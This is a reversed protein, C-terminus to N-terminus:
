RLVALGIVGAILDVGIGANGSARNSLPMIPTTSIFMIFIRVQMLSNHRIRLFQFHDQGQAGGCPTRGIAVRGPQVRLEPLLGRACGSQVVRRVDPM